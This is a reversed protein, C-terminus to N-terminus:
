KVGEILKATESIRELALSLEAPKYNDMNHVLQGITKRFYACDVGYRNTAPKGIGLLEELERKLM